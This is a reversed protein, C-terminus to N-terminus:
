PTGGGIGDLPDRECMGCDCKPEVVWVIGSGFCSRCVEMRPEDLRVTGEPAYFGSPVRGKGDCVPCRHPVRM